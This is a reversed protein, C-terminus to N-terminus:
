LELFCDEIKHGIQLPQMNVSTISPSDSVDQSSNSNNCFIRLEEIKKDSLGNYKLFPIYTYFYKKLTIKKDWDCKRDPHESLEYISCNLDRVYIPKAPTYAKIKLSSSYILGKQTFEDYQSLDLDEPFILINDQAFSQSSLNEYFCNDTNKNQLINKINKLFTKDEDSYIQGKKYVNLLSYIMTLFRNINPLIITALERINQDENHQAIDILESYFTIDDWELFLSLDVESLPTSKFTNLFHRLKNGSKSDCELFLKLFCEICHERVFTKKSFYINNYGSERTELFYEINNLDSYKYVDITYISGNEDQKNITDYHFYPINIPTGAYLNDRSIYDFRDVDCNSDDHETFNLIPKEYIDKLITPLDPSISILLSKIEKNELMIRKGIEEHAGRQGFLRVELAHSLPPHGIDHGAVKFLEALLYIKLNNKEIYNKWEDNQFNHLMEELKKYYVGKSHELRTHYLNPFEDIALGLQSIRGLRKMPNTNFFDAIQKPYYINADIYNPALVLDIEKELIVDKKIIRNDDFLWTFFEKILEEKSELIELNM